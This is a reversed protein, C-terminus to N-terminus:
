TQNGNTNKTRNLIEIISTANKVAEEKESKSAKLSRPEALGLDKKYKEWTSKLGKTQLIQFTGFSVAELKDRKEKVQRTALEEALFVFDSHALELFRKEVGGLNFRVM